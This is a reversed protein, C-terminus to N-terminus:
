CLQLPTVCTAGKKADPAWDNRHGPPTYDAGDRVGDMIQSLMSGTLATRAKILTQKVM